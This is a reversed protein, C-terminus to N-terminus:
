IPKQLASVGPRMSELRVFGRVMLESELGPGQWRPVSVLLYGGPRLVRWIEDLAQPLSEFNLCCLVGFSLVVDAVRSRLPARTADGELSAFEFRRRRGARVLFGRQPEVLVFRSTLDRPLRQRLLEAVVGTGAGLDVVLAPRGVVSDIAALRRRITLRRFPLSLLWSYEVRSPLPPPWRM